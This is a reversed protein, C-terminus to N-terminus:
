WLLIQKSLTPFIRQFRIEYQKAKEEKETVEGSKKLSGGDHSDLKRNVVDTGM